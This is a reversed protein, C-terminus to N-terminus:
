KKKIKIRKGTKKANKEIMEFRPAVDDVRM